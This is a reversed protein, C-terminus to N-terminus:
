AKKSVVIEEGRCTFRKFINQHSYCVWGRSSFYILAAHADISVFADDDSIHEYKEWLSFDPELKLYELPLPCKKISLKVERLLRVPISCLMRFIINNRLPIFLKSIKESIKLESYSRQELKKVTWPRCNWAPSLVAIGNPKLIREIEKFANEVEPIHELAAFSFVFDVTSSEVPLARADGEFINLNNGYIDKALTLATNSYEFGKWNPHSSNLHGLGCGIEIVVADDPIKHKNLYKKIIDLQANPRERMKKQNEFSGYDHGDTKYVDSYLQKTNIMENKHQHPPYHKKIVESSGFNSNLLSSFYRGLRAGYIQPCIALSNGM